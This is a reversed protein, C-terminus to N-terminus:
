GLGGIFDIMMPAQEIESGEVASLSRGEIEGRSKVRPPSSTSGSPATLGEVNSLVRLMGRASARPLEFPQGKFGKDMLRFLLREIAPLRETETLVRYDGATM